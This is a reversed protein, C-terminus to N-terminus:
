ERGCVTVCSRVPIATDYSLRPSSLPPRPFFVLAPSLRAPLNSGRRRRLYLAHTRLRSIIERNAGNNECIWVDDALFASPSSVRSVVESGRRAFCDRFLLTKPLCKVTFSHSVFGFCRLVVSPRTWGGDCCCSSGSEALCM